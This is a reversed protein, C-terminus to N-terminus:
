KAKKLINYLQEDAGQIAKPVIINGKKDIVLYRPIWDLDVYNSLTNKWGDKFRYHEGKIDFKSIASKWKNDNEDVSLYLFVVEEKTTRKELKENKPLSLICDKCWSAWFDVVIKKGAYAELLQSFLIEQGALTYLPTNKVSDPFIQKQLYEPAPRSQAVLITATFLLPVFAFLLKLKM